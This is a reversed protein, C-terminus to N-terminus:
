EINTCVGDSAFIYDKGDINLTTNNVMVGQEDFYFWKREDESVSTLLWGKVYSNDVIYYVNGNESHWGESPSAPTAAESVMAGDAGLTKGEVTTNKLMVGQDDYYYWKEGNIVWGTKSTTCAEGENVLDTKSTTCATMSLVALLSIGTLAAIITKKNFITILGIKKKM